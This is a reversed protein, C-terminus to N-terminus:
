KLKGNKILPVIKEKYWTGAEKLGVEPTTSPNYNLVKRAKDINASTANQDGPRRPKLDYKAKTGMVEEAIRLAEGTTIVSDLGINFIEGNCKDLNNMVAVFGDIIDGVYTYSRLHNESGEFYPFKYETFMSRYVRPYLKEPREREGYVSFLRLSCAPMNKDRQRALVLQEAALKTVGYYSAPKPVYTEDQTADLGYVSSTSINVFFKFADSEEVAELLKQTAVINNKLYDEFPTSASIGPQAALHFVLECGAVAKLLDDGALDLVHLEVGKNEIDEVNLKKLEIDYYDTLADIGVVEHGLGTLRECLHSGIFGAAGTVLVKM